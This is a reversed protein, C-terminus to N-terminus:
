KKRKSFTPTKAHCNPCLIRLNNLTNDYHDGNIHDLTIPIPEGLWETNNCNECRWEKLEAEILRIKLKHSTISHCNKVLYKELPQKQLKKGKNHGQGQFHETSIALREVRNYVAAYSGGSLKWGAAQCVQRVSTSARVIETFAEDSIKGRRPGSLVANPYHERVYEQVPKQARTNRAKIGLKEYLETWTQCDNIQEATPANTM